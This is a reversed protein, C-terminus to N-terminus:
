PATVVGLVKGDKRAEVWRADGASTVEVRFRIDMSTPLNRKLELRVARSSEHAVLREAQRALAPIGGLDAYELPFLNDKLRGPGALKVAIPGLVQGAKFRYQQVAARAKADQVQLLVRDPYVNLRLARIPKPLPETLAALARALAPADHLLSARRAPMSAARTESPVVDNACGALLTAM